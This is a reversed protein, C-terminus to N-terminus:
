VWSTTTPKLRPPFMTHLYRPSLWALWSRTRHQTLTHWPYLASLHTQLSRRGRQERRPTCFPAPGQCLHMHFYLTVPTTNRRRQVPRVSRPMCSAVRMFSCGFSQNPLALLSETGPWTCAPLMQDTHTLQGFQRM